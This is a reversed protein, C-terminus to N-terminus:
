NLMELFQHSTIVPKKLEKAKKAKSSTTADDDTILYDTKNSVSSGVVGGNEKITKEIVSRPQATCSGTVVFTKGSLKSGLTKFKIISRLATIDDKKLFIEETIDRAKDESVRVATALLAKLQTPNSEYLGMIQDYTQLGPVRCINDWTGLGEIDLSAFFQAPTMELRATLGDKLKTYHKDGRRDLKCYDELTLKWLDAPTRVYKFEVMQRLTEEGVGKVDLIDVFKQMRGYVRMWCTYNPCFPNSNQVVLTTSCHICNKPPMLNAPLNM